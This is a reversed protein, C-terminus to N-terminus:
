TSCQIWTIISKLKMWFDWKSWFNLEFLIHDDSDLPFLFLTLFPSYRDWPLLWHRTLNKEPRENNANILLPRMILQEYCLPWEINLCLSHCWSLIEFSSAKSVFVGVIFPTWTLVDSSNIKLIKQETLSHSEIFFLFRM